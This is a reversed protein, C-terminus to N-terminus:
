KIHTCVMTCTHFGSVVRQLRNGEDEMHSRTVSSLDGPEYLLGKYRSLCRAPGGVIINIICIRSIVDNM